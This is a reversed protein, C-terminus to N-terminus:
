CFRNNGVEDLTIAPTTVRAIVNTKHSMSNGGAVFGFRMKLNKM